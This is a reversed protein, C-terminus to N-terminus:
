LHGNYLLLLLEAWLAPFTSLRLRCMSNAVPRDVQRYHFSFDSANGGNVEPEKSVLRLSLRLSVSWSAYSWGPTASIAAPSLAQDSLTWSNNHILHVIRYLPFCNTGWFFPPLLNRKLRALSTQTQKYTPKDFWSMSTVSLLAQCSSIM